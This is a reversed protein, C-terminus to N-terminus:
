RKTQYEFEHVYHNNDHMMDILELLLHEDLNSFINKQASVQDNSDLLFMQAYTAQQKSQPFLPKIRHYLRGSMIVSSIGPPTEAIQATSSAM